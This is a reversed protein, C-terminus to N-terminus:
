VVYLLAKVLWKLWGDPTPEVASLMPEVDLRADFLRHSYSPMGVPEVCVWVGFALARYAVVIRLQGVDVCIVLEGNEVLVEGLM